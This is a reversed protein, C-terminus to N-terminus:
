EGLDFKRRPQSVILADVASKVSELGSKVRERVSRLDRLANGNVGAIISQAKEALARLESDNTIDRASFLRLFEALNEVASDRFIRPKGDPGVALREALHGVLDGLGVRLAERCEAEMDAFRAQLKEGERARVDDPLVDPVKFTVYSWALGFAARAKEAPPYDSEKFQGNLRVRALERESEYSEMFSDVLRERKAAASKLGEEVEPLLVLPLISVGRFGADVAISRGLVWAQLANDASVIAAYSPGTFLVKGLKLRGKDADTEVQGLDGKRVNGLRSFSLRMLVSSEMISGMVVAKRRQKTRQGM